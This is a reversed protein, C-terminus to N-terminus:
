VEKQLMIGSVMSGRVQHHQATYRASWYKEPNCKTCESSIDLHDPLLGLQLLRRANAKRLDVLYKGDKRQYWLGESDGHLYSSLADPVDQDTEFCCPGISPGLAACINQPRAGLVEMEAVANCLIDSASSRWGCHVAGIAHGELDCLLVPVCDATFCFIPLGKEGTVLGDAKTSIGTLCVHKDASTVVQVFNGHVQDTVCCDDIDSSFLTCWRRYNERVADPEDGRSVSINFSEFGKRSVGGLRTSFAHVTPIVSSTLYVPGEPSLHESFM